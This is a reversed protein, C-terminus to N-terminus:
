GLPQHPAGPPVPRLLPRLSELLRILPEPRSTQSFRLSRTEGHDSVVLEIQLGDPTPQPAFGASRLIARSPGAQALLDEIWHRQQPSLASDAVTCGMAINAWGGTQLLRIQM